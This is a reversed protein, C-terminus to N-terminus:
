SGARGVRRARGRGYLEPIWTWPPQSRTQRPQYSGLPVRHGCGTCRPPKGWVHRACCASLVFEARADDEDPGAGTV